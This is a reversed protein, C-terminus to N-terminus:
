GCDEILDLRNASLDLEDDLGLQYGVLGEVDLLTGFRPRGVDGLIRQGSLKRGRGFAPRHQNVGGLAAVQPDGRRHLM